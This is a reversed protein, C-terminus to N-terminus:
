ELYKVVRGIDNILGNINFANVAIKSCVLCNPTNFQGIKEGLVSKQDVVADAYKESMTYFAKMSDFYFQEIDSFLELFKKRNAPKIDPVLRAIHKTRDGIKELLENIEWYRLM